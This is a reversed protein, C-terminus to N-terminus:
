CRLPSCPSHSVAPPEAQLALRVQPSLEPPDEQGNDFRGLHLRTLAPPLTTDPHVYLPYGEVRLDCLQSLGGLHATVRMETELQLHLLRLSPLGRALSCVKVAPLRLDRTAVRLEELGGCAAVARLINSHLQLLCGEEYPKKNPIPIAELQLSRVAAGAGSQELWRCFATLRPLEAAGLLELSFSHVLQPWDALRRWRSCVLPLVCRRCCLSRSPRDTPRSRRLSRHRRRCRLGPGGEGTRCAAPQM